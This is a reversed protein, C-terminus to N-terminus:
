RKRRRTFTAAVGMIALIATPPEPIEGGALSPSGAASGAHTGFNTKWVGYDAADVAGNGDGDATLAAGTRGLTDRWVTYDAADVVGNRNYDGTLFPAAVSLQLEYLQAASAAGTVRIYYQGASPLALNSRIEQQGAPASNALALQTTGDTSYVALALDSQANANLSSQSGGQPGQMYTGGRPILTASLRTAGTVSFSYFDTDTNSDISVFDTASPAVALSAAAAGISKMAGVAIAGLNTAHAATDNGQGSNSKELADGYLSQVGLIDDLQPGDFGTSISPAMLFPTSSIVHELGLAHGAEHTLTNRFALYSPPSSSFLTGDSTDLLMDGFNPYSTQALTGNAGDINAGAIRMDGRVGLLGSGMNHTTGDDHSEYAFTVGSLQSWRDFSQSFSTFWPRKTLDTGGPGAGFTTDLFSILTSKGSAVTTGDPVISWTLKIPSGQSGTAGSATNSWRMDVFYAQAAPASAMLFTIALLLPACRPPLFRDFLVTM